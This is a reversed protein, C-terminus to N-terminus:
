SARQFSLYKNDRMFATERMQVEMGASEEHRAFLWILVSPKIRSLELTPTPNQERRTQTRAICRHPRLTSPSTGGKKTVARQGSVSQIDQQLRCLSLIFYLDAHARSLFFLPLLFFLFFHFFLYLRQVNKSLVGKHVLVVTYMLEPKGQLPQSYCVCM